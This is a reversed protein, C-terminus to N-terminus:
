EQGQASTDGHVSQENQEFVNRGAGPIRELLM